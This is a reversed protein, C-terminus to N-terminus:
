AKGEMGMITFLFMSGRGPESELRFSGGLMEVFATSIALGLGSGEFRRGSSQHAQNFREFISKQSEPSIGIGSDRIFFETLGENMRCGAEIFGKDTFKISNKILNILISELKFKDTFITHRGAPLENKIRFELNKRALEPMFFDNLYTFVQDLDVKSIELNVQNSEIKAIEMINNITSLLRESSRRVIERFQEQKQVPLEPDEMLELFGLIGNLPTRIEHSMNSLFASKLRDSELARDKAEVLEAMVQKKDTIDHIISHQYDRGDITIRSSFVEVDRIEGSRLRHRFEFHGQGTKRSEEVKEAIEGATMCNIQSIKMHRLEDRSWGYFEAAALNIDVIDLTHADFLLQMASQMEFLDRFKKESALRQAEAKKRDTIDTIIVQIAPKGDYRLATVTVEGTVTSGDMRIFVYEAPRAFNDGALFRKARALAKPISSPHLFDEVPRGIIQGASGAGFMELGAPNIYVVKNESLVAIVVPAETLLSRYREESEALREEVSLRQLVIAGQSAILEILEKLGVLDRKILIALSGFQYGKSVLGIIYIRNIGLIREAIFSMAKPIKGGSFRHLGGDLLELRGTNYLQIIQPDMDSVQYEDHAPDTGLRAAMRAWAKALGAIHAVRLDGTKSDLNTAIVLGGAVLSRIKESLIRFLEMKEQMDLMERQFEATIRATRYNESLGPTTEVTRGSRGRDRKRWIFHM